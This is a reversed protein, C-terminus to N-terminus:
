EQNRFNKVFEKDSNLLEAGENFAKIFGDESEPHNTDFHNFVIDAMREIEPITRGFITDETMKVAEQRKV